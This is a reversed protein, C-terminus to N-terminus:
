RCARSQAASGVVLYGGSVFGTLSGSGVEAWGEAGGLVVVETGPPMISLVAADLSPRERLNLWDTTLRANPPIGEVYDDFAWGDVGDYTVEVFGNVPEDLSQRLEAGCPMVRLIEADLSPGARLNLDATAFAPCPDCSIAAAPTAGVVAVIVGILVFRGFRHMGGM